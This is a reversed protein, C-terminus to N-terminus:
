RLGSWLLGINAVAYAVFALSLGHNGQQAYDLSTLLYLVTALSLAWTSM